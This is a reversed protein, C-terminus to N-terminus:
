KGKLSRTSLGATPKVKVKITPAATTGKAYGGNKLHLADEESVEMIEGAILRVSKNDIRAIVNKLIKIKM